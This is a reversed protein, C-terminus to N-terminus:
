APPWELIQESVAPPLQDFNLGCIAGATDKFWRDFPHQSAVWERMARAPDDGEHYVIVITGLPTAQLYWRQRTLGARQQYEAWEAARPGQLEQVFRHAEEEQGPRVPFIVAMSAM